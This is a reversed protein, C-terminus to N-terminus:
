LNVFKGSGLFKNMKDKFPQVNEETSAAIVKETRTECVSLSCAKFLIFIDYYRSNVSCLLLWQIYPTYIHYEVEFVILFYIVDIVHFCQKESTM